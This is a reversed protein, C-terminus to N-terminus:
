NSTKPTAPNGNIKEYYSKERTSSNSGPFLVNQVDENKIEIPNKVDCRSRAQCILQSNLLLGIKDKVYAGLIAKDYQSNMRDLAAETNGMKLKLMNFDETVNGAELATIFASNASAMDKNATKLETVLDAKTERLKEVKPELTSVKEQASKFKKEAAEVNKKSEASGEGEFVRYKGFGVGGAKKTHAERAKDLEVKVLNVSEEAAILEKEVKKLEPSIKATQDQVTKTKQELAKVSEDAFTSFSFLLVTLSILIRLM